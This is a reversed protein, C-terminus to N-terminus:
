LGAAYGDKRLDSGGLLADDEVMIAQAGGFDPERSKV